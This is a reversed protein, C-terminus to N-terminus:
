VSIDLYKSYEREREREREKEEDKKYIIYMLTFRFYIIFSISSVINQSSVLNNTRVYVSKWNIESLVLCRLPLM